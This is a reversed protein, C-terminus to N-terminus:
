LHSSVVQLVSVLQERGRGQIGVMKEQQGQGPAAVGIGVLMPKDRTTPSKGKKKKPLGLKM